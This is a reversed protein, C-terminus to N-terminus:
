RWVAVIEGTRDGCVVTEPGVALGTPEELPTEFTARSTGTAPDVVRVGGGDYQTVYLAGGVIAPQNFWRDETYTWLTEGTKPALARLGRDALYLRGDAFQPDPAGAAGRVGDITRQWVVSGDAPDVAAVTGGEGTIYLLGDFPVVSSPLRDDFTTKWQQTGSEADLAYMPAPTDGDHSGATLYLTGDVLAPRGRVSGDTTFSWLLEDATVDFVRLTRGGTSSGLYAIGDRVLPKYKAGSATGWSLRGDALDVAETGFGGAVFLHDGAVAHRLNSSDIKTEYLWEPTGADTGLALVQGGVTTAYVTGDAVVPRERVNAPTEYRWRVNGPARPELTSRTTPSSATTGSATDTRRPSVTAAGSDTPTTAPETSEELQLCGATVGVGLASLLSRRSVPRGIDDDM